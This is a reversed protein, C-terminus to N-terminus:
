KTRTYIKNLIQKSKKQMNNYAIQIKDEKDPIEIVGYEVGTIRDNKVITLIKM